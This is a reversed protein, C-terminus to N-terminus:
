RNFHGEGAHNIFEEVTPYRYTSFDSAWQWALKQGADSLASYVYWAKAGSTFTDDFPLLSACYIYPDDTICLDHVVGCANGEEDKIALLDTDEIPHYFYEADGLVLVALRNQRAIVHNFIETSNM